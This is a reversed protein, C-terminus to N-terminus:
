TSLYQTLKQSIYPSIHKQTMVNLLAINKYFLLFFSEVIEKSTQKQMITTCLFNCRMKVSLFVVAYFNHNKQLNATNKVGM